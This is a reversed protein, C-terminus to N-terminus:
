SLSDDGKLWTQIPAAMLTALSPIFSQPHSLLQWTLLVTHPHTHTHARIVTLSCPFRRRMQKERRERKEGALSRCHKENHHTALLHSHHSRPRGGVCSVDPLDLPTPMKWKNELHSPFSEGQLCLKQLLGVVFAELGTKSWLQLALWPVLTCM